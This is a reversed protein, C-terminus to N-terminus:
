QYIRYDILLYIVAKQFYPSMKNIKECKSQLVNTKSKLIGRSNTNSLSGDNFGFFDIDSQNSTQNNFDYM